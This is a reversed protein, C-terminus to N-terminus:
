VLILSIMKIILIDTVIFMNLKLQGHSALGYGDGILLNTKLILFVSRAMAHDGKHQTVHLFSSLVSLIKSLGIM